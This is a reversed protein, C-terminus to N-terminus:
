LLYINIILIKDYSKFYYMITEIFYYDYIKKIMKTKEIIKYFNNIILIFKFLPIKNSFIM